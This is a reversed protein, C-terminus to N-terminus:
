VVNVLASINGTANVSRILYVGSGAGMTDYTELASSV